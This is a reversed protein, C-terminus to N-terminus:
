RVTLDSLLVERSRVAIGDLGTITMKLTRTEWDIDLMGFNVSGHMTELQHPGYEDTDAMPLNLSSSTIEYLPYASDRTNRYMAARHRDGSLFVIGNAGTEGILKFLRAREAPLNGWREWGHGDALVQISSAVIRVDAPERLQRSLWAWQRAGLLTKDAAADPQYPGRGEAGLPKRLLPSRFSRTDLMIIQVRKGAPGFTRAYYIGEPDEGIVSGSGDWFNRFYDRGAARHVFEAGADNSGYDHDDWTALVPLAERAKTFDPHAALDAYAKRLERHDPSKIDGYVNDGLMLFLQPQKSIVSHWIPQPKSQHLCSGFAIRTLPVEAPPLPSWKLSELGERTVLDTQAQARLDSQVALTLGFIVVLPFRMATMYVRSLGNNEHMM